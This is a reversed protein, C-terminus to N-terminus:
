AFQQKKKGKIFFKDKKVENKVFAKRTKEDREPKRSTYDFPEINIGNMAFWHRLIKNM